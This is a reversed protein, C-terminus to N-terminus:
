RHGTRLRPELEGMMGELLQGMEDDALPGLRLSVVGRRGSSWNPRREFLEPRTLTIVLVPADPMWDALQEVLDLLGGDAWQLDEFVLVTTQQNAIAAFYSRIAADFESRDGDPTPGCCLLAGLWKRLRTRETDDEVSVDLAADLAATVTADDDNEAVGIHGRLMDSLAWSAVGETGYAPSRGHNWSIPEALGDAYKQLEWVLRSKGIGVEGVISVMRARRDRGVGVLLDKLLQLESQRGVFPPDLGEVRGRGRREAIVRLAQWTRIPERKGKLEPTGVAEFAIAHLAARHTSEGVLVTGPDAVSQLRAASNVLDGVVMATSEGSGSRVAAEGTHIGVRLMIGPDGVETALKAVAGQLELGARVAREADDETAVHAGWVAMVADGAFKEVVGGFRAIVDRSRDFYENLFTAVVEPDQQESRATFGVLDAFLVTVLRRETLDSPTQSVLRDSLAPRPDLAVGCQGCFRADPKVPAGCASCARQM